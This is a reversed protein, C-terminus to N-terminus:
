GSLVLEKVREEKYRLTRSEGRRIACTGRSKRESLVFENVRGEHYCLTGSEERSFAYTGPSGKQNYTNM